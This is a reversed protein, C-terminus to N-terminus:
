RRDVLHSRCLFVYVRNGSFSNVFSVNKKFVQKLRGFHKGKCTYLRPEPKKEKVSKEEESKEEETKEEEPKEEDEEPKEEKPSKVESGFGGDLPLICPKFYSM